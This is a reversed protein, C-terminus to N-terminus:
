DDGIVVPQGMQMAYVQPNGLLGPIYFVWRHGELTDILQREEGLWTGWCFCLLCLLGFIAMQSPFFYVSALDSFKSSYM